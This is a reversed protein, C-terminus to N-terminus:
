GTAPSQRKPWVPRLVAPQPADKARAEVESLPVSAKRSAVEELKYTKIKELIDSM